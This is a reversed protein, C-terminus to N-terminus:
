GGVRRGGSGNVCTNVAMKHRRTATIDFTGSVSRTAAVKFRWVSSRNWKSSRWALSSWSSMSKPMLAPSQSATRGAIGLRTCSSLSLPPAESAADIRSASERELSVARSAMRSAPAMGGSTANSCAPAADSAAVIAAPVNHFRARSLGVLWSAVRSAPAM